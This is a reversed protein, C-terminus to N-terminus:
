SLQKGDRNRWLEFPPERSQPGDKEEQFRCQVNCLFYQASCYKGMFSAKFSTVQPGGLPKFM